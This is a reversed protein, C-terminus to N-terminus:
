PVYLDLDMLTMQNENIYQLVEKYYRNRPDIPIFWLNFPDFINEIESPNALQMNRQYLTAM